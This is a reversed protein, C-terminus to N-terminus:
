IRIDTDSGEPPQTGAASFLAFSYCSVILSNHGIHGIGKDTKECWNHNFEPADVETENFQIPLIFSAPTM